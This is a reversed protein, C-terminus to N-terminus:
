LVQGSEYLCGDGCVAFPDILLAGLVRLLCLRKSGCLKAYLAAPKGIPNTVKFRKVPTKRDPVVVIGVSCALTMGSNASLVAKFAVLLREGIDAHLARWIFGRVERGFRM